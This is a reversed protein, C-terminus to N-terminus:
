GGRVEEEEEEKGRDPGVAVEAFMGETAEAGERERRLERM